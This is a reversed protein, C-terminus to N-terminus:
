PRRRSGRFTCRVRTGGDAGATLELVGGLLAARHRMSRVGIGRLEGRRPPLGRGDDRVDLQYSREVRSLSVVIHGAKGHLIANAVAEQVIRYVHSATRLDPAYRGVKWELTVDVGMMERTSDCLRELAWELSRQELDAPYLRHALAKSEHIIDQVLHVLRGAQAVEPRGGARLGEQLDRALFAAGALMQSLGDHLEMGLRRQEREAVDVAEEALRKRETVDLLALQVYQPLEPDAAAARVEVFVSARGRRRLRLELGSSSPTKLYEHLAAPQDVLDLLTRGALRARTGGFLKVAEQNADVILAETDVTVLAIPAADYLTEHRRQYTQQLRQLREDSERVGVLARLLPEHRGGDM